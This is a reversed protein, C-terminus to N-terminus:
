ATPAATHLTEAGWRVRVATIPEDEPYEFGQWGAISSGRLAEAGDLDDELALFLPEGWGKGADDILHLSLDVAPNCKAQQCEVEFWVLVYDAGVPADDNFMNMREVEANAPRIMRAARVRGGKFTMWAGTPIPDNVLGRGANAAVADDTAAEQGASALVAVVVIVVIVAAIMGLCGLFPVGCSLGLIRFCGSGKQPSEAM